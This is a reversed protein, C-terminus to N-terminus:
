LSSSSAWMANACKQKTYSQIANKTYRHANADRHSRSFLLIIIRLMCKCVNHMCVATAAAAVSVNSYFKEM